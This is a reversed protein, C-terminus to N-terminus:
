VQIVMAKLCRRGVVVFTEPLEILLLSLLSVFALLVWGRGIWFRLALGRLPQYKRTGREVLFCFEQRLRVIQQDGLDEDCWLAQMGADDWEPENSSRGFTEERQQLAKESQHESPLRRFRLENMLLEALIRGEGAGASEGNGQRSLRRPLTIDGAKAFQLLEILDHRVVLQPGFQCEVM